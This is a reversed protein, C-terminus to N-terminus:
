KGLIEKKMQKFEDDDIAGSDLLEKILKIREGKTKGGAGINSKNVVSDKVITDRDDIYDGHVVTQSVKNRAEKRVRIVDDDMGYKKYIKAAEDFELLKEHRKAKWREYMGIPKGIGLEDVSVETIELKGVKSKDYDELYDITEDNDFQFLKISKEIKFGPSKTELWQANYVVDWVSIRTEHCSYDSNNELENKKYDDVPDINFYDDYMSYELEEPNYYLVCIDYKPNFNKNYLIGYEINLRQKKPNKVM